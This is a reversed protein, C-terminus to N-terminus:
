PIPFGEKIMADYLKTGYKADFSKTYVALDQLVKEKAAGTLGEYYLTGKQRALVTDLGSHYADHLWKELPVLDQIKDGGLYMPWSHHLREATNAASKAIRTPCIAKLLGRAKEAMKVKGGPLPLCAGIVGATEESYGFGQIAHNISSDAANIINVVTSFANLLPAAVQEIYTEGFVYPAPGPM